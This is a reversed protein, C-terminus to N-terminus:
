GASSESAVASEGVLRSVESDAVSTSLWGSVAVLLSDTDASLKELDEKCGLDAGLFSADPNRVGLISRACELNLLSRQPPQYIMRPRSTVAHHGKGENCNVM